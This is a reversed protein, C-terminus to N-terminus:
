RDTPAGDAGGHRRHRPGAHADDDHGPTHDIASRPRRDFEAAHVRAHQELGDTLVLAACLPCLTM